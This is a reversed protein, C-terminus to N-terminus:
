KTKLRCYISIYQVLFAEYFHGVQQQCRAEDAGLCVRQARRLEAPLGDAGGIVFSLRAGGVKNFTIVGHLIVHCLASDCSSVFVSPVTSYSRLDLHYCFHTDLM